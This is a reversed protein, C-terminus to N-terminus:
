LDVHVVEVVSNDSDDIELPNSSAHGASPDHANTAYSRLNYNHHFTNSSTRNSTADFSVRTNYRNGPAHNGSHAVPDTGTALSTAGGPPTPFSLAFTASSPPVNSNSTFSHNVPTQRRGGHNSRVGLLNMFSSIADDDDSSTDSAFVNLFNRNANRNQQQRQLLPVLAGGFRQVMIHGHLSSTMGNNAAISALLGELAAGTVIDSRQDRQKVKKTNTVSPGNKTRRQKNVRTVKAFRSKCLPCSNERDSWKTICGFCFRHSCGDIEAAEEWTPECMCIACPQKDVEETLGDVDLSGPPPKKLSSPKTIRQRKTPRLLESPSVDLASDVTAAVPALGGRGSTSTHIERPFFEGNSRNASTPYRRSGLAIMLPESTRRESAVAADTSASLDSSPSRATRKNNRTRTSKRRGAVSAVVATRTSANLEEDERAAQAALMRNRAIAEIARNATSAAGTRDSSAFGRGDAPPNSVFMSFSAMSTNSLFRTAAAVADLTVMPTSTSDNGGSNNTTRRRSEFRPLASELSQVRLSPVRESIGNTADPGSQHYYASGAGTVLSLRRQTTPPVPPSALQITRSSTLTPTLPSTYSSNSGGFSLPPTGGPLLQGHFGASFITNSHNWDSSQRSSPSTSLDVVTHPSALGSVM